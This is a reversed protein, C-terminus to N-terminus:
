NERLNVHELSRTTGVGVSVGSWHHSGHNENRVELEHPVGAEVRVLFVRSRTSSYPKGDVFLLCAPFVSVEITGYEKRRLDVTLLKTEGPLLLVDRDVQTYDSLDFRLSWNGPALGALTRPTRLVGPPKPGGPPRSRITIRAGPPSSEVTLTSLELSPLKVLALDLAPTSPGVTISAEASQYGALELRIVWSGAEIGELTCPTLQGTSRFARAPPRALSVSAGVPRSTIKLNHLPVTSAAPVQETRTPSDRKPVPETQARTSHAADNSRGDMVLKVAGIAVVLAMLVLSVLGLIRGPLIRLIGERPPARHPASEDAGAPQRTELTTSRPALSDSPRSLEGVDPPPADGRKGERAASAGAAEPQFMVPHVLTEVQRHALLEELAATAAENGPDVKLAQRFELIAEDHHASGRSRLERGREVLRAAHAQTLQTSFGEPDIALRKLYSRRSRLYAQPDPLNEACAEIQRLVEGMNSLRNERDKEMMGSILEDLSPTVFMELSGPRPPIYSALQRVIESMTEGQFPRIGTLMEYATVGFSFIDTRADLNKESVSQEPSMYYATGLVVGTGTMALRTSQDTSRALGFDTLKIEGEYSLMVNAPKLDRHIIGKRHLAELGSAAEELIALVIELPLRRQKRLVKRLDLGEIHEMVIYYIENETGYDYITVVNRHNLAAAQRAEEEFRAVYESDLALAPHLVKIAVRRNLRTDLAPYVTAMGGGGLPEGMIRYHKFSRM